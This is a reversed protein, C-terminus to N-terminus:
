NSAPYVDVAGALRKRDEDTAPTGTEYFHKMGAAVAVLQKKMVPLILNRGLLRGFVGLPMVFPLALTARTRDAGEPSLRYDFEARRFPPMPKEGQHLRLTFGQGERWDIITEELFKDGTYVRRRAGLGSSAASVIETRTLGPVYHHALSFDALLAWADALPMDLTVGVSCGLSDSM